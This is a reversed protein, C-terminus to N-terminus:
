YWFSITRSMVGEKLHAQAQLVDGAHTYMQGLVKNFNVGRITRKQPASKRGPRRQPALTPEPPRYANPYKAYFDDILHLSEPSMWTRYVWSNESPPYDLWKALFKVTNGSKKSDLIEEIDYEKVATEAEDIDKPPHPYNPGHAETETYPTLLNAHFVPHIRWGVPLKLKYNVPGIVEAIKFPGHRKDALKAKPRTTKLNKGDLHVLDGVKFTPMKM